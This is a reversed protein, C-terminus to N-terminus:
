RWGTNSYDEGAVGQTGGYSYNAAPIAELAKGPVPFHLLTGKQLLNEKRMEFFTIGMGTYAFEVMREYHIAKKVAELDTAVPSLNGRTVRTGSNIVAAAGAVDNTHALAEAKFMDNEAKSFEVINEKWNTIYSDLRKYRYSSFHYKGRSANFDNSPLFEYDSLLRSDLSTSPNAQTYSDTWYSPTNPDMLNVIRMDVRGWGGYVAYTHPASSYWIIDDMYIEFNSTVGANAYALVKAWDISAKQTSNRVNGVLMRAGMSNMFAKLKTANGGGGPLWNEPFSINNANAIAIAEDLKKLALAMAVKYDSAGEGIVGSEDSLWVKDFVLALYGISLAQGLKATMEIQKTNEFKTGNKVALALTNSDSLVSYLSNFYKSTIAQNGYSSTNNYAVRPESSLDRMGFNGWSVTVVDSMTILAMGPGDTSHVAMFWNQLVTGATATLAVPDSTLTKDNPNELNEVELDTSLNSCSFSMFLVLIISFIKIIYKM